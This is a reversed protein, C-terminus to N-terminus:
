LFIAIIAIGFAGLAFWIAWSYDAKKAFKGGARHQRVANRSRHVRLFYESESIFHGSADRYTSM